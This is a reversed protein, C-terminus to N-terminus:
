SAVLARRLFNWTSVEGGISKVDGFVEVLFILSVSGCGVLGCYRLWSLWCGKGGM